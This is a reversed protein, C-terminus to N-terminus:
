CPMIHILSINFPDPEDFDVFENYISEPLEKVAACKQFLGLTYIANKDQWKIGLEKVFDRQESVRGGYLMKMQEGVPWSEIIFKTLLIAAYISQNRLPKLYIRDGMRQILDNRLFGSDLSKNTTLVFKVDAQKIKQDGLKTYEKNEFLRLLKAQFKDDTEGIEDLHLCGGQASEIIGEKDRHAGTFSGKVHGFLNSELLETLVNACNHVSVHTNSRLSLKMIAQAALEKGVGTPGHVLTPLTNTAAHEIQEAIKDGYADHPLIFDVDLKRLKASLRSAIIGSSNTAQKKM